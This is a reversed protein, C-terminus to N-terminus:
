FFLGWNCKIKLYSWCVQDLILLKRHVSDVNFDESVPVQQKAFHEICLVLQPKWPLWFLSCLLQLSSKRLKSSFHLKTDALCLKTMESLLLYLMM